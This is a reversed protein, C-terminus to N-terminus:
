QVCSEKICNIFSLLKDVNGGLFFELWDRRERYLKGNIKGYLLDNLCILTSEKIPEGQLLIYPNIKVRSSKRLFDVTRQNACFVEITVLCDTLVACLKSLTKGTIAVDEILIINPAKNRIQDLVQLTVEDICISSPTKEGAVFNRKPYIPLSNPLRILNPRTGIAIISESKISKIHQAWLNFDNNSILFYSHDCNSISKLFDQIDAEIRLCSKEFFLPLDNWLYLYKM